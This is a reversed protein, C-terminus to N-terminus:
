EFLLQVCEDNAMRFLQERLGQFLKVIEEQPLEFKSHHIRISSTNPKGSVVFEIGDNTSHISTGRLLIYTDKLLFVCKGGVYECPSTCFGGLFGTLYYVAKELSKGHHRIRAEYRQNNRIM